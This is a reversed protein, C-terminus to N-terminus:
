CPMRSLAPFKSGRGAPVAGRCAGAVFSAKAVCRRGKQLRAGERGRSHTRAAGAFGARANRPRFGHIEVPTESKKDARRSEVVLIEFPQAQLLDDRGDFLEAKLDDPCPPDLIGFERHLGIGGDAAHHDIPALLPELALGGRQDIQHAPAAQFHRDDHQHPALPKLVDRDLHEVIDVAIDEEGLLRRFEDGLFRTLRSM